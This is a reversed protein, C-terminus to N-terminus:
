PCPPARAQAAPPRAPEGRGGVDPRAADGAVRALGAPDREQGPAGREVAGGGGAGAVGDGGPVYLGALLWEVRLPAAPGEAPAASVPAADAVVDAVVPGASLPDAPASFSAPIPETETLVAVRWAPLLVSLVPAVAGRRHRAGLGHPAHRGIRRPAGPVAAALGAVAWWSRPRALLGLVALAEVSSIPPPTM